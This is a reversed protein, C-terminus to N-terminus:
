RDPSVVVWIGPERPESADGQRGGARRRGRRTKATRPTAQTTARRVPTRDGTDPRRGVGADGSAEEHGQSERAALAQLSRYWDSEYAEVGPDRERPTTRPARGAARGARRADADTGSVAVEEGTLPGEVETREDRERSEVAAPTGPEIGMSVAAMAAQTRNTVGLKRFIAALHAKM